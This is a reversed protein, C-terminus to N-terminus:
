SNDLYIRFILLGQLVKFFAPIDNDEIVHVFRVVPISHDPGGAGSPYPRNAVLDGLLGLEMPKETM